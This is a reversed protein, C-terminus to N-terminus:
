PSTASTTRAEHPCPRLAHCLWYAPAQDAGAGDGALVHQAGDTSGAALHVGHHARIGLAPCAESGLVANRPAARAEVLQQRRGADLGDVDAGRVLQVARLGQSRGSGALVHQALLRQREGHGVGPAHDGGAAVRAHDHAGVVVQAVGGGVPGHPGGHGLAPDARGDGGADEMGDVQRRVELAPPDVLGLGAAADHEVDGDVIRVREAEDEVVLRHLDHRQLLAGPEGTGAELVTRHGHDAEALAGQGLDVLRERDAVGAGAELDM